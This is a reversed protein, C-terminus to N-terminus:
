IDSNSLVKILNPTDNFDIISHNVISDGIVPRIKKLCLEISEQNNDLLLLENISAFRLLDYAAARGQRGTGIICYKKKM